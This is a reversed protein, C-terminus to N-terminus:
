TNARVRERGECTRGMAAIEGVTVSTEVQMVVGVAERVYAIGYSKGDASTPLSSNDRAGAGILWTDTKPDLIGDKALRIASLDERQLQYRSTQCPSDLHEIQLITDGFTTKTQSLIGVEPFNPPLPVTGATYIQIDKDSPKTPSKSM